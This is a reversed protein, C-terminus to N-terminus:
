AKGGGVSVPLSLCLPECPNESELELSQQDNFCLEYVKWEAKEGEEQSLPSLFLLDSHSAPPGLSGMVIHNM